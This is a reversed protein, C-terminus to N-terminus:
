KWDAIRGKVEAESEAVYSVVTGHIYIQLWVGHRTAYGFTHVTRPRSSGSLLRYVVINNNDLVARVSKTSKKEKM